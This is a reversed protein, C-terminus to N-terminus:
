PEVVLDRLWWPRDPRTTSRVREIWEERAIGGKAPMEFEYYSFAAGAYTPGAAGDYGHAYIVDPRGVAVILARGSVLDEEARAVFAETGPRSTGPPVLRAALRHVHAVPDPIERARTERTRGDQGVQAARELSGLFDRHAELAATLDDDLLYNDLLRDRLHEVLERLRAYLLPCPEVLPPVRAASAAGPTGTVSVGAAHAADGPDEGGPAWVSLGLPYRRLLALGAAITSTRKAGWVRSGAFGPSGAPPPSALAELAYLWSWPLDQTWQGYTLTELGLKIDDFGLRYVDSAFADRENLAARAWESGLLGAVDLATPLPTDSEGALRAFHRTDALTPRALFRMGRVEHTEYHAPATKAVTEVFAAVRVRDAVDGVGFSDGFVENAVDIYDEITPDGSGGRYFLLPDHVRDWVELWDGAEAQMALTILLAQMTPELDMVRGEPLAFAMRSYWAVARHLRGLREDEAYRGRPVYERYDEGPGAVGDLPTSGMIPSRTLASGEEILALEREVLGRATESPFYDPDLLSLPVAFFAVNKRAAEKVSQDAATLYQEESLRVLARSLELLRDYLRRDAIRIFVEELFARTVSLAYDSTIFAPYGDVALEAYASVLDPARGPAMVVGTTALVDAYASPLPTVTGTAWAPEGSGADPAAVARSSLLVVAALAAVAVIPVTTRPARSSARTM